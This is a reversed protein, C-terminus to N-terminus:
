WSETPGSLEVDLAGRREDRRRVQRELPGRGVAIRV